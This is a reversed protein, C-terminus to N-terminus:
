LRMVPVETTGTLGVELYRASWSPLNHKALWDRVRTGLTPKPTCFVFVRNTFDPPLHGTYSFELGGHKPLAHIISPDREGTLVFKCDFERPGHNTVAFLTEGDKDQGLCHLTVEASVPRLAFFGLAIVGILSACALLRLSLSPRAM